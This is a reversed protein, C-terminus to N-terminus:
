VVKISAICPKNDGVGRPSKHQIGFYNGLDKRPSLVSLRRRSLLPGRAMGCTAIRWFPLFLVDNWFTHFHYSFNTM